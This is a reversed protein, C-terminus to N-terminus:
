APKIQEHHGPALDVDEKLLELERYWDSDTIFPMVAPGVKSLYPYSFSNNRLEPSLLHFTDGGFSNIFVFIFSLIMTGKFVGFVAGAIRNVFGLAALKLIRQLVRALFHVGIVVALFVAAFALAPLYDQDIETNEALYGEATFSFKLAMWIGLILAVISALEIVLGKAFGRVGLFLLIIGVILDIYNM